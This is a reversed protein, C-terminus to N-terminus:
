EFFGQVNEGFSPNSQDSESVPTEAAPANAETASSNSETASVNTTIASQDQEEEETPQKAEYLVRDIGKFNLDSGPFEEIKRRSLPNDGLGRNM